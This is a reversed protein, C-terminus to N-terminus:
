NEVRVETDPLVEDIELKFYGFPNIM